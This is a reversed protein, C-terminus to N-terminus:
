LSYTRDPDFRFQVTDGNTGNSNTVASVDLFLPIVKASTTYNNRLSNTTGGVIGLTLSTNASISNVQAVETKTGERVLVKQGVKFQATAAVSVVGNGSSATHAGTLAQAGIIVTTGIASTTPLTVAMQVTTTDEFVGTVALVFNNGGIINTIVKAALIGPGTKTKDIPGSGDTFTGTNTGTAAYSGLVLQDDPFVNAPAIAQYNGSLLDNFYKPVRWRYYTEIASKLSTVGPLPTDISFYDNHLRFWDSFLQSSGTVTKVARDVATLSAGLVRNNYPIDDAAYCLNWLANDDRASLANVMALQSAAINDIQALIQSEVSM